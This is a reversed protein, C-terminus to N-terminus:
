LATWFYSETYTVTNFRKLSQMLTVITEFLPLAVVADFGWYDIM